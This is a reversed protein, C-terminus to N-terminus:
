GGYWWNDEISTVGSGGILPQSADSGNDHFIARRCIGSQFFCDSNYTFLRLLRKCNLLWLVLMGVGGCRSNCQVVAALWKQKQLCARM